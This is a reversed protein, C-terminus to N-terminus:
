PHLWLWRPLVQELADAHLEVLVDDSHGAELALCDLQDPAIRRLEVVDYAPEQPRVWRCALVVVPRSM